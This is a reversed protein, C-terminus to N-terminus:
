GGVSSDEQFPHVSAFGGRFLCATDFYNVGKEIAPFIQRDEAEDDIRGNKLLFRM